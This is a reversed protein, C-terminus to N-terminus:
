LDLRSPAKITRKVSEGETSLMRDEPPTCSSISTEQTKKPRGRNKKPVLPTTSQSSQGTDPERFETLDSVHYRGIMENRNSLSSLEYTTPTVVKAIIYPGDRKPALKSSIKKQANSLIHTKLLM